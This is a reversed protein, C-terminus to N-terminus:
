QVKVVVTATAKVKGPIPDLTPIKELIARYQQLYTTYGAQMSGMSNNNGELVPYWGASAGGGSIAYQNLFLMNTGTNGNQIKVGVGKATQPNTYDDSILYESSGNANILNLQQANMYAANSPQFGIAVQDKATGSNATNSCEVEVNFNVESTAGARLQTAAIAPFNVTPTANRAVCTEARSLVSSSTNLGYAIGYASFFYYSTNSDAGEKDPTWSYFVVNSNGGLQIYASPQNCAAKITTGALTGSQYTGDTIMHTYCFSGRSYVPLSSVKYLTAELPPIDMLRIQIRGNAAVAYNKIDLRKWYRSFVVGDMSQKLGIYQWWTAYVGSLGDAEGVEVHGGFPEDGNTAVLFYINPLDAPDCTWIVTSPSIGRHSPPVVTHGLVSGTPQLYASSLNLSGFEIPTAYSDAANIAYTRECRAYSTSITLLTAIFLLFKIFLKM